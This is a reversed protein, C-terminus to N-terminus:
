RYKLSWHNLKKLNTYSVGPFQKEFIQIAESGLYYFEETNHIKGNNIFGFGYEPRGEYTTGTYVIDGDQLDKAHKKVYKQVFKDYEKAFHRRIYIGNDNGESDYDKVFLKLVNHFKAQRKVQPPTPSSIRQWRRTGSATEVVKWMKGDLGKRRSGLDLSKNAASLQPAKRKSTLKVSSAM